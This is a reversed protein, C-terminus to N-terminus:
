GTYIPWNLCTGQLDPPNATQPRYEFQTRGVNGL